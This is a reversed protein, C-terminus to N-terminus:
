SKSGNIPQKSSVFSFPGLSVLRSTGSFAVSCYGEKNSPEALKDNVLYCSGTPSNFASNGYALVIEYHRGNTCLM